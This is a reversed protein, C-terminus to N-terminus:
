FVDLNSNVAGQRQSTTGSSTNSPNKEELSMGVLPKSSNMDKADQVGQYSYAYITGVIRHGNEDTYRWNRIKKAGSINAKARLRSQMNQISKVVTETVDEKSGDVGRKVIAAEQNFGSQAESKTRFSLSLFQAIRGRALEEAQRQAAAAYQSAISEDKGQFTPAWFSFSVLVPGQEDIMLRTGWMDRLKEPDKIPLQERLPKGVNKLAPKVGGRLSQAVSETTPSRMLVIGVAANGKKDEVIFNQIPVIGSQMLSAQTTVIRMLHNQLLVKKEDPPRSAYESPDVGLKRLQEDLEAEGLALLKKFIAEVKSTGDSLSKSDFDRADTSTDSFFGRTAEFAAVGAAYKASEELAKNYAEEYALEVSRVYEAHAKNRGVPATATFIVKGNKNTEGAVLDNADLYDQIVDEIMDGALRSNGKEIPKANAGVADSNLSKVVNEDIVAETENSQQALCNFAVFVLLSSILLKKFHMKSNKM